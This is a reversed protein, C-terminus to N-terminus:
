AAAEEGYVLSLPLGLYVCIRDAIVISIRKAKLLRNRHLNLNECMRQIGIDSMGAMLDHIPGVDITTAKSKGSGYAKVYREQSLTRRGGTEGHRRRYDIHRDQKQAATLPKRKRLKHTQRYRKHRAADFARRKKIAEAKCTPCLRAPPEIVAPCHLCHRVGRRKAACMKCVRRGHGPEKRGGCDVCPQRRLIARADRKRQIRWKALEACEACYKQGQGPLKEGGCAQCPKRESPRSRRM